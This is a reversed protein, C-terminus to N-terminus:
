AAQVETRLSERQWGWLQDHRVPLLRGGGGTQSCPGTSLLLPLLLAGM